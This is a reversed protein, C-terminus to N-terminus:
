KAPEIMGGMKGTRADFVRIYAEYSVTVVVPATRAAYVPEPPSPLEVAPGLTLPDRRLFTLAGRGSSGGGIAVSADAVGALALARTLPPVELRNREALDSMALVKVFAKDAPRGLTIIEAGDPSFDADRITNARGLSRKEGTALDWVYANNANDLTFASKGDPSAVVRTYGGDVRLTRRLEGTNADVVDVSGLTSAVFLTRGDPSAFLWGCTFRPARLERARTGDDVRFVGLTKGDCRAFLRDPLAAIAGARSTAGIGVPDDVGLLKGAALDWRQVVNGVGLTVLTRGDPALSASGVRDVTRKATHTSGAPPFPLPLAVAAPGASSASPAASASTAAVASASTTTSPASTVPKAPDAKDPRQGCASLVFPSALVALAALARRMSRARYLVAAPAPRCGRGLASSHPASPRAAWKRLTASRQTM